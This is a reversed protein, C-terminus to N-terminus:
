NGSSTKLPIDNPTIVSKAMTAIHNKIAGIIHSQNSTALEKPPYKTPTDNNKSIGAESFIKIFFM